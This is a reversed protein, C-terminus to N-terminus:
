EGGLGFYFEIEANYTDNEKLPHFSISNEVLETSSVAQPPIDYSFTSNLTLKKQNMTMNIIVNLPAKLHYDQQVSHILNDINILSQNFNDKNLKKIKYSLQFNYMSCYKQEITAMDGNDFKFSHTITKEHSDPDIGTVESITSANDLASLHAIVSSSYDCNLAIQKEAYVAISTAFLMAMFIIRSKNLARSYISKEAIKLIVLGSRDTTRGAM